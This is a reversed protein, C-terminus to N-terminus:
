LPKITAKLQDTALDIVEVNFFFTKEPDSLLHFEGEFCDGDASRLYSNGPTPPSSLAVNDKLEPNSEHIAEILRSYIASSAAFEGDNTIAAHTEGHIAQLVSMMGSDFIIEVKDGGDECSFCVETAEFHIDEPDEFEGLDHELLEYFATKLTEGDPGELRNAIAFFIRPNALLRDLPYIVQITM